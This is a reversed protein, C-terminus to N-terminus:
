QDWFPRIEVTGVRAVPHRSAIEIAEDLDACELVDFGGVQEKTEAFPGDTVLPRGDRVRVSSATDTTALRHGDLRVGRASMEAVWRAGAEDLEKAQEPTLDLNEDGCILLLYKM